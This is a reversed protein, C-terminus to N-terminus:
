RRLKGTIISLLTKLKDTVVNSFSKPVAIYINGDRYCCIYKKYSHRSVFIVPKDVQRLLEM